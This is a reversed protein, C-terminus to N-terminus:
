AAPRAARFDVHRLVADQFGPDGYGSVIVAVIGLRM